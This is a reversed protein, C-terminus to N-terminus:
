KRRRLHTTRNKKAREKDAKKEKERRMETKM